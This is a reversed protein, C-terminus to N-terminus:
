ALPALQQRTRSASYDLVLLVLVVSKQVLLQHFAGPLKASYYPTTAFCSFALGSLTPSM